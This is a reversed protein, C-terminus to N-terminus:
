TGRNDKSKGMRTKHGAQAFSAKRCCASAGLSSFLRIGPVMM